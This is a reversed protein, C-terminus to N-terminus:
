SPANQIKRAKETAVALDEKIKAAHTSAADCLQLAETLLVIAKEPDGHQIYLDVLEQRAVLDSSGQQLAMEFHAIAQKFEKQMKAIQGLRVWPLPHQIGLKMAMTIVEQFADGAAYFQAIQFYCEALMQRLSFSDLNVAMLNAIAEKYEGGKIATQARVVYVSNSVFEDVQRNNKFRGFLEFIRVNIDESSKANTIYSLCAQLREDNPFAVPIDAISLEFIEVFNAHDIKRLAKLRASQAEPSRTSSFVLMADDIAQLEEFFRCRPFSKHLLIGREDVTFYDVKYIPTSPHNPAVFGGARRLAKHACEADYFLCDNIRMVLYSQARITSAQTLFNVGSLICNGQTIVLKTRECTISSVQPVWNHFDLACFYNRVVTRCKEDHLWRRLHREIERALPQFEPLPFSATTPAVATMSSTIKVTM